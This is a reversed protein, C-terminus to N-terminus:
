YASWWVTIFKSGAVHADVKKKKKKKKEEEEEEEEEEESEERSLRLSWSGSSVASPKPTHM